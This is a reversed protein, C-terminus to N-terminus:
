PWDVLAIMQARACAGEPTPFLAAVHQGMRMEHITVRHGNARARGAFTRCDPLFIEHTGVWLHLPALGVPDANLPSIRPDAPDMEGAYWEGARRAGLITLMLDREALAAAAPDAMTLDLWPSILLGARPQPRGSDRVDTLLSLTMGGGASDGAVVINEAGYREVMRDYVANASALIEPATHEPAKPYVPLAFDCGLEDTLAIGTAWQPWVPGTTYGGGHLYLLVRDGPTGAHGLIHLPTAGVQETVHHRHKALQKPPTLQTGKRGKAILADMAAPDHAAAAFQEDVRHLRLMRLVGNLMRARVSLM